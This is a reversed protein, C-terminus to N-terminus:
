ATHDHRIDDLEKSIMTVRTELAAIQQSHRGVDNKIESVDRKVENLSDRITDLSRGLSSISGGNETLKRVIGVYVGIITALTTACTGIYPALDTFTM